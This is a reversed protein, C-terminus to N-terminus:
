KAYSHFHQCQSPRDAAAAAAKTTTSTTTSCADAAVVQSALGCAERVTATTCYEPEDEVVGEASGM